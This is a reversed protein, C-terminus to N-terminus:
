ANDNEYGTDGTNGTDGIDGTFKRGTYSLMPHLATTKDRFFRSRKLELTAAGESFKPQQM